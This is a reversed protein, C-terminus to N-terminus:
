RLAAREDAKAAAYYVEASLGEPDVRVTTLDCVSDYLVTVHKTPFMAKLMSWLQIQNM